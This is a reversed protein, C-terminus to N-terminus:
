DKLFEDDLLKKARRLWDRAIEKKGADLALDAQDIVTLLRQILELLEM